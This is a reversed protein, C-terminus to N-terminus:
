EEPLLPVLLALTAKQIEINPNTVNELLPTALDYSVM